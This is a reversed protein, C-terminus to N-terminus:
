ITNSTMIKPDIAMAQLEQFFLKAAYPFQVQDFETADPCYMCKFINETPNAVAIRGCHKCVYFAYKDSNDFLREKLFGQMAHGLMCDREMEGFRFGGDRKRGDPPQRTLLQLPGQARAHSKFSAMHKLRQYYTVGIFLRTKMRMGTCGNYLTELGHANFGTNGLIESLNDAMDISHSSFATADCQFGNVAGAKGIIVELLQGITMRSPIAHPNVIIDPVIGEATTPMDEQSFICGITGKQGFRSSNGTWCPVGNRRVYFVGTSVTPCFVKGTYSVRTCDAVHDVLPQNASARKIIRVSYTQMVRGLNRKSINASWGAHLALRQVDSALPASKTMYDFEDGNLQGMVMAQLLLVCQRPSLTWVWDPLPGSQQVRSDTIVPSSTPDYKILNRELIPVAFQKVWNNLDKSFVSQKLGFITLWDDMPIKRGEFAFSVIQESNFAADRKYHAAVQNDVLDAVTHLRYESLSRVYMRHNPTALLSVNQTKVEVMQGDVETSWDFVNIASPKEYCLADGDLVALSHDLTMQDIHVWGTSTLVDHDPTLCFKDGIAPVLKSRIRVKAFQYGDSDRNVYVWDVIGGSTDSISTSADRFKPGNEMPNKLPVVKGIIVDGGKVASGVRVLGNEDLLDYSSSKTGATRLTGNANYKVPKCFREEELSAQNKRESDRYTRYYMTTFLGRDIASQNFILSDEQNFGKYTAIAVIANQGSPLDHEHIYKAMKTSVLPMQAFRLTQGPNDMRERYNTSYALAIAQKRQSAEFTIRPGQNHEVFPIACVVAGFILSPHIECHTYHVYSENSIKNNLIDEYNMAVMATEEEQTDLYDIKGERLLTNWDIQKRIIKVFDSPEIVLRNDRVVFLPRCIRGGKVLINIEQDAINWSISTYVNVVGSRRLDRLKAVLRDPESSVGWPNGDIFVRVGQGMEEPSADLIPRVREEDLVSSIPADDSGITIIAQMSLNKVIGIMHGDPTESPDFRGWQTSHLKRPETVKGGKDSRPANVRRLHSIYSSYSLRNIPQAIGKKSSSAQSKMGWTGTGLAYRISSEITNSKIKKLISTHVEDIRGQRLDSDVAKTIDRVLKNFNNRFLDAMLTGSTSVRKNVFSDRDDHKRIGLATEILRRTMIGLFWAKKIPNEGVHPFLETTLLDSVIKMRYKADAEINEKMEPTKSVYNAMFLLAMEQTRIESSEELSARLLQFSERNRPSTHDFLIMQCIQKDSIVGLARFVVFLPVPSDNKFRQIFVHVSGFGTKKQIKLHTQRNFSQKPPTSSIEVSDSYSSQIKSQSFALIKNECKREQCILVKEAGKVIFYGGKEYECEGLDSMTQGTMTSLVCFRTKLMIPISHLNVRRMVPFEKTTAEGSESYHIVKQMVDVFIDASYTLNRWRAESPYMMKTKGDPEKIGPKGIFVDGFEIVYKTMYQKLSTNFNAKIEVPNHDHIIKPIGAIVFNDYSEIHHQTLRTPDGFFDDLIHWVLNRINDGNFFDKTEMKSDATTYTREDRVKSSLSTENSTSTM